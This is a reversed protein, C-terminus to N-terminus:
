WRRATVYPVVVAGQRTGDGRRANCRRHALRVNNRDYPNGGKSVPIIEDIVPAWPDLHPPDKDVPRGCLWCCDEETLVRARLQRRRYGNAYRPNRTVTGPKGGRGDWATQCTPCRVQGPPRAESMCTVCLGPRPQTM